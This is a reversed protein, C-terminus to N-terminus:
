SRPVGSDSRFKRGLLDKFLGSLVLIDLREQSNLAKQNVKLDKLNQNRGVHGLSVGKRLFSQLYLIKAKPEGTCLSTVATMGTETM